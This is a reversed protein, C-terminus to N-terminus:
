HHPYTKRKQEHLNILQYINSGLLPLQSCISIWLIFFLSNQPLFLHFFTLLLCGIFLFFTQQKIVGLSNLAVSLTNIIGYLNMWLFFPISLDLKIPFLSQAFPHNFILLIGNACLYYLITLGLSSSLVHIFNKSDKKSISESYVPLLPALLTLHFAHFLNAFKMSTSFIAAKKLSISNAVFFPLPSFLFVSFLNQFWYPLPAFSISIKAHIFWWRKKKIFVFFAVCAFVCSLLGHTILIFFLSSKKFFAFLYSLILLLSEVLDVKYKLDFLHSALFCSYSISFPLRLLHFFCFLFFLLHLPSTELINKCFIWELPSTLLLFFLIGLSFLSISYFSRFLFIKKEEDTHDLSALHRQLYLGGYGFDVLSIFFPFSLFLFWLALDQESLFKPALFLITVQSLILITKSFFSYFLQKKLNMSNSYCRPKDEYKM